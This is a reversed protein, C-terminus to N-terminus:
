AHTKVLRKKRGGKGSKSSSPASTSAPEQKKTRGPHRPVLEAISLMLKKRSDIEPNYLSGDERKLLVRLRGRQFFDRPYAKELEIVCPIKLHKCCDSIENCTPNECAKSGNIRRGEAITKKSNIYIPYIINWKKINQIEGDM